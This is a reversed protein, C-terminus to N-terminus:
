EPKVLPSYWMTHTSKIQEERPRNSLSLPNRDGIGRWCREQGRQPDAAAPFHLSGRNVSIYDAQTRHLDSMGVEVHHKPAKHEPKSRKRKLFNRQANTTRKENTTSLSNTGVAVHHKSITKQQIVASRAMEELKTPHLGMEGITGPALIDYFVREHLQFKM